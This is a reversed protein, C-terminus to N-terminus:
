WIADMGEEQEFTEKLNSYDEPEFETLGELEDNTIETKLKEPEDDELRYGEYSHSKYRPQLSKLYPAPLATGSESFYEREVQRYQQELYEKRDKDKEFKLQTEIQDLDGKLDEKRAPIYVKPKIQRFGNEGCELMIFRRFGKRGKRTLLCSFEGTGYNNVLERAFQADTEIIGGGVEKFVRACDDCDMVTMLKWDNRWFHKIQRRSPVLVKKRIMVKIKATM